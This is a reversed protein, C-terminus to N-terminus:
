RKAHGREDLDEVEAETAAIMPTLRAISAATDQGHEARRRITEALSALRALGLTASTGRLRHTAQRILQPDGSAHELTDRVDKAQAVASRLYGALLDWEFSSALEALVAPDVLPIDELTPEPEMMPM